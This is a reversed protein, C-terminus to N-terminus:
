RGPAPRWRKVMRRIRAPNLRNWPGLADPVPGPWSGLAPFTARYDASFWGGPELRLPGPDPRSDGGLYTTISARFQTGAESRFAGISLQSRPFLRGMEVFGTLDGAPYRGGGGRLFADLWPLRYELTGVLAPLRGTWAGGTVSWLWTGEDLLGGWEASLGTGLPASWGGLGALTQGPYPFLRRRFAASWPSLSVDPVLGLRLRALGEWGSGAQATFDQNLFSEFRDSYFYGPVIQWDLRGPIAQAPAPPMPPPNLDFSLGGAFTRADQRGDRFAMWDSWRIQLAMQAEGRFCCVLTVAETDPAPLTRLVVGLGDVPDLSRRDEYWITTSTTGTAIALNEFGRTQLADLVPISLFM